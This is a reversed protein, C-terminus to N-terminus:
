ILMMPDSLMSPDVYQRGASVVSCLTAAADDCPLDVVIVAHGASQLPELLPDMTAPTDWAGPVIVFTSVSREESTFHGARGKDGVPEV